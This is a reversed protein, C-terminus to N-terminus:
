PRLAREFQSLARDWTYAAASARNQVGAAKIADLRTLWATLAGTLAEHSPEVLLNPPEALIEPLGGVRTALVAKGAAMAELAVIGFPESRRPFVAFEAGNLLEVVQAPTARGFFTIRGTLGRDVAQLELKVREEGEGALLLDIDPFQSAVNAFADILLDCGKQFTLRGYSLIYRRRASYIPVEAFRALDVGNYVVESKAAISPEIQTAQDLLYASCVTIRDAARLIAVFTRREAPTRRTFGLVDDGHLSVVLRFPYRRRLRLVFPNMPLPFHVNIVDPKFDRMIQDLGRSVTPFYYLAALFLDPRRARLQSLAPILFLFRDISVGDLVESPPLNRPYRNTLVRVMHGQASLHSALAASVTQVGGLVPPYSSPLLLVRM